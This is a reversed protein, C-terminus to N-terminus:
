LADTVAISAAPLRERGAVTRKVTTELHGRHGSEQGCQDRGRGHHGPRGHGVRGVPHAALRQRRGGLHGHRRLQRDRGAALAHDGPHWSPWSPREASFTEIRVAGAPPSKPGVCVIGAFAWPRCIAIDASPVRRARTPRTRTACRACRAARAPGSSGEGLRRREDHGALLGREAHVDRETAGVDEARGDGVALGATAAAADPRELQRAAGVGHRGRGSGRGDAARELVGGVVVEAAPGPPTRRPRAPRRRVAARAVTSRPARACRPRGVVLDVVVAASTRAASPPGAARERNGAAPRCGLRLGAGTSWAGSARGRRRPRRLGPRACRRRTPDRRAGGVSGRRPDDARRRGADGLGIPPTPPKPWPVSFAPTSPEPASTAAHAARRSRRVVRGDERRDDRRPGGGALGDRERRDVDLALDAIKATAGSPVDTTSGTRSPMSLVSSTSPDTRSGAVARERDGLVDGAGLVVDGTDRVKPACGDAATPQRATPTARAHPRGGLVVPRRDALTTNRHSRSM